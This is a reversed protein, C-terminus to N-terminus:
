RYFPNYMDPPTLAGRGVANGLIDGGGFAGMGFLQGATGLLGGLIGGGQTPPKPPTGARLNQKMNLAQNGLVPNFLGQMAQFNGMIGEPTFQGMAYQNAQNMGLGLMRNFASQQAGSGLGLWSAGAAASKGAQTGSQIGQNRFADIRAQQGGPGALNLANNLQWFYNPAQAMLNQIEQGGLLGMGYTSERMADMGQKRLNKIYSQNYSPTLM